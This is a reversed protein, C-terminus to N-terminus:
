VSSPAIGFIDSVAEKDSGPYAFGVNKFEITGKEALEVPNEPDKVAVGHELVEKVRRGCVCARPWLIMITILLVFSMVIQTALMVFQNMSDFAKRAAELSMGSFTYANVWLITLTLGMMVFMIFPTFLAIAKGVFIM